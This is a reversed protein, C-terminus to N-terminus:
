KLIGRVPRKALGVLENTAWLAGGCLDNGSGLRRIIVGPAAQECVFFMYTTHFRTPPLALVMGPLLTTVPVTEIEEDEEAVKVKFAAGLMGGGTDVTWHGFELRHMNVPQLDSGLPTWEAADVYIYGQMTAFLVWGHELTGRAVDADTIPELQEAGETWAANLM